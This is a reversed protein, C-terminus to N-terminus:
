SDFGLSDFDMEWIRMVWLFGLYPRISAGPERYMGAQRKPGPGEGCPKDWDLPCTWSRLGIGTACM